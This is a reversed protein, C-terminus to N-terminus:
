DHKRFWYEVIYLGKSPRGRNASQPPFFPGKKKIKFILKRSNWKTDRSSELIKSSKPVRNVWKQPTSAGAVSQGCVSLMQQFPDFFPWKKPWLTLIQCIEGFLKQGLKKKLSTWDVEFTKLDGIKMTRDASEAMIHISSFQFIKFFKRFFDLITFVRLFTRWFVDRFIPMLNAWIPGLIQIHM